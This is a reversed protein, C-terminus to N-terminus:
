TLLQLYKSIIIMIKYQLLLLIIPRSHDTSLLYFKLLKRWKDNPHKNTAM